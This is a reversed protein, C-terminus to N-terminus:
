IGEENWAHNDRVGERRRPVVHRLGEATIEEETMMVALYKGVEQWDVNQMELESSEIM